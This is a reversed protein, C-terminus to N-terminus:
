ADVALVDGPQALRPPPAQEGEQGRRAVDAPRDRRAVDDREAEARAVVRADGLQDLQELKCREGVARDVAQRGALPRADQERPRQRRPRPQQQEVLRQGVELGIPHQAEARDQALEAVSPM